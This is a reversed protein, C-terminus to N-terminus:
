QVYSCAPSFFFNLKHHSSPQNECLCDCIDIIYKVSLIIRKILSTVAFQLTFSSSIVPLWMMLQLFYAVRRSAKNVASFSLLLSFSSLMEQLAMM